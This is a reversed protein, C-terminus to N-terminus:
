GLFSNPALAYFAIPPLRRGAIETEEGRLYRQRAHAAYLTPPIGAMGSMLGHRNM